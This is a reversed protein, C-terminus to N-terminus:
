ANEVVKPAPIRGGHMLAIAYRVLHPTLYTLGANFVQEELAAREADKKGLSWFVVDTAAQLSGINLVDMLTLLGSYRESLKKAAQYSPELIVEVGDITVRIENEM